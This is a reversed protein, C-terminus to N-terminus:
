PGWPPGDPTAIPHTLSVHSVVAQAHVAPGASAVSLVEASFMAPITLAAGVAAVTAGGLWGASRM